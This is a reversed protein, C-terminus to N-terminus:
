IEELFDTNLYPEFKPDELLVYLTSEKKDKACISDLLQKSLYTKGARRVGIIALVINKAEIYETIKKLYSDRKIGTEQPKGWFNLPSIVEIIDERKM